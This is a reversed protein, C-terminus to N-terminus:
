GVSICVQPRERMEAYSVAPDRGRVNGKFVVGDHVVHM